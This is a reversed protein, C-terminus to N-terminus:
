SMPYVEHNRDFWVIHFVNKNRYGFLRARGTVRCEWITLEPSIYEPLPQSFHRQDVSKFGKLKRLESWSRNGFDRLAQILQKLENSQWHELLFHNPCTDSFSFVPALHDTSGTEHPSDFATGSIKRGRITRSDPKQAKPKVKKGM